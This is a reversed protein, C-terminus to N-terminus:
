FYNIKYLYIFIAAFKAIVFKATPPVKVTEPFTVKDLWTELMLLALKKPNVVVVRSTDAPEVNLPASGVEVWVGLLSM